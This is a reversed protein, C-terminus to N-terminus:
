EVELKGVKPENSTGEWQSSYPAKMLEMMTEGDQDPLIMRLVDRGEEVAWAFQVNMGELIHDYAVNLEFKVGRDKIAGVASNIVSQFVDPPIPYVIQINPHDYTEPLGHTHFNYGSPSNEEDGMVGHCFFGTEKLLEKEKDFDRGQCEPHGHECSM